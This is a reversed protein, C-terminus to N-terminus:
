GILICRMVNNLQEHYQATYQAPARPLNPATVRNLEFETTVVLTM